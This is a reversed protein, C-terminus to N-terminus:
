ARDSDFEEEEKSEEPIEHFALSYTGTLGPAEDDVGDDALPRPSVFEIVGAAESPFSGEHKVPSTDPPFKFFPNQM